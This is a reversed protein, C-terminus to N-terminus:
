FGYESQNLGTLIENNRLAAINVRTNEQCFELDSPKTTTFQVTNLTFETLLDMCIENLSTSKVKIYITENGTSPYASLLNEAIANQNNNADNLNNFYALSYRTEDIGFYSTNYQSLNFVTNIGADCEFLDDPQTSLQLQTINIEDVVECGNTSTAVVRYTGLKDGEYTSGNENTLRQGDKFWQFSFDADPSVNTDLTFPENECQTFDNGISFVENFTGAEIFVASDFNTDKFDGIVLKLNYQKNAEINATAKLVKTFGRMNISSNADNVDNVDNLTSFLGPNVSNCASNYQSDRISKVSIIDGTNPLIALNQKEGTEIDTLIFGFVDSFGCQFEGYENSAFVFDFDFLTSQSIFNFSLLAVDFIEATQGTNNSIANLDEDAQSTGPVQSSLNNDLFRGESNKAIGNRIVVGERIPFNSGNNNFYAVSKNSSINYNSTTVCNDSILIDVLDQATYSTDDITVQANINLISAGFFIIMLLAARSYKKKFISIYKVFTM